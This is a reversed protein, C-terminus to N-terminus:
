LNVWLYLEQGHAQATRALNCLDQLLATVTEPDIGALEEAGAWRAAYTAVDEESATALALRLATPFRHLWPGEARGGFVAEFEDMGALVADGDDLSGGRVIQLLPALELTTLGTRAIVLSTGGPGHQLVEPTLEPPSAAFFDSLIAMIM